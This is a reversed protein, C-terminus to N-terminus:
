ASWWNKSFRFTAPYTEDYGPRDYEVSWGSKRYIEEVDLWHEAFIMLKIAEKTPLNYTGSELFNDVILNLVDEQKFESYNGSWHKAIMDNFAKIVEDPINIAKQKVVQRPTIPKIAM